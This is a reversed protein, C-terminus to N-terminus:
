NNIVKISVTITTIKYTDTQTRVFTCTNFKFSTFSDILYPPCNHLVLTFLFFLRSNGYQNQLM